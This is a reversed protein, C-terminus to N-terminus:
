FPLRVGARVQSFDSIWSDVFNYSYEAFFGICGWSELRVDIGGGASYFGQTSGLSVGGAGGFFYPAWDGSFGGGDLPIRYILKGGYVQEATGQGFVAYDVEVGINRNFFYSFGIGGGVGNTGAEPWLGAGFASFDFGSDFCYSASTTTQAVGEIPNKGGYLEDKKFRWGAEADSATMSLLVAATTLFVSLTKM